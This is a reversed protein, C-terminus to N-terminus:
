GTAQLSVANDVHHVGRRTAIEKLRSADTSFYSGLLRSTKFFKQLRAGWFEASTGLREFIGAVEASVRAKGARCLRSTYDVLLLYSGLSFNPLMGERKSDKQSRDEVPCLWHSDELKKTARSGALSGRASSKLSELQGQAKAHEVRQRVSTHRSTEPTAAIGAAVPNLDIYACTALLAEEDLIAISKYRSEWFTGKCDDERNALRALPEKLAKMFWGLSQLRQRYAAVKKADRCEHDVWMQVCQEDDLDLTRPPYVAIWRRVIEEDTWAEATKPDLRCLVHLHNDMVAFGCVSVAFHQALHELRQEIWQKRHEFGEGCLFARRVCRSICHYYRTVELDVLQSRAVTMTSSEWFRETWDGLM